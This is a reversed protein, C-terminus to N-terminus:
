TKQVTPDWINVLKLLSSHIVKYLNLKNHSPKCYSIQYHILFVAYSFSIFMIKTKFTWSTPM